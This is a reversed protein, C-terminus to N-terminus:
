LVVHGACLRRRRRRRRRGGRASAGSLGLLVLADFVEGRGQRSSSDDESHLHKDEQNEAAVPLEVLGLSGVLLTCLSLAQEM